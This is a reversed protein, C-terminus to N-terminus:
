IIACVTSNFSSNQLAFIKQIPGQSCFLPPSSSFFLPSPSNLAHAHAHAHATTHGMEMDRSVKVRQMEADGGLMGADGNVFRPGM